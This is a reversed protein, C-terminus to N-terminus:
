VAVASEGAAEFLSPQPDVCAPSFWIRERNGNGTREEALAGYGAGASWRYVRWSAPM